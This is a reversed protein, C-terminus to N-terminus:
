ALLKAIEGPFAGFLQGVVVWTAGVVEWVISGVTYTELRGALTRTIEERAAREGALAARLERVDDLARQDVANLRANTRALDQEVAAIREDL